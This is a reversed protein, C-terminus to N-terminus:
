KLNGWRTKIHKGEKWVEMIRSARKGNYLIEEAINKDNGCYLIDVDDDKIQFVVYNNM